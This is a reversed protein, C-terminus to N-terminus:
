TLNPKLNPNQTWPQSKKLVQPHAHTYICTANLLHNDTTGFKGRVNPNPGMTQKIVGHEEGVEISLFCEVTFKVFVTPQILPSSGM